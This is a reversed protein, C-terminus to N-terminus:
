LEGGTEVGYARALYAIVDPIEQIARNMQVQVSALHDRDRVEEICRSLKSFAVIIGYTPENWPLSLARERGARDTANALRFAERLAPMLGHPDKVKRKKEGRRGPSPDPTLNDGVM